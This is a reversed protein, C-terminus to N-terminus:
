KCECFRDRDQTESNTPYTHDATPQQNLHPPSALILTEKVLSIAAPPLQTGRTIVKKLCQQVPMM